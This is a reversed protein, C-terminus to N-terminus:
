LAKDLRIYFTSYNDPNFGLAFGASATMRIGINVVANLEMGLSYSPQISKNTEWLQGMDFFISAYIRDLSQSLIIAKEVKFLPFRYELNFLYGGTGSFFGAPYGRLLALSDSNVANFANLPDSGGMFFLPKAEGWSEALALNCVLVAPRALPLYYRLGLYASNGNFDSGMFKFYNAMSLNIKFGDSPSISNYFERTTNMLFSSSVGSWTLQAFTTKEPLLYYKQNEIQPKINFYYQSGIGIYLPLLCSVSIKQSRLAYNLNDISTYHNTLNSFSFGLTPSFGNYLYSFFYNFSCSQLGYFAEWTYQHYSIIDNGMILLGPQHENGGQRYNPSLYKPLLERWSQYSKLSVPNEETNVKQQNSLLSSDPKTWDTFQIEAQHIKGLDYGHGTLCCLIYQNNLTDSAYFNILPLEPYSMIISSHDRLDIMALKKTQQHECIFQLQQNNKWQPQYCKISGDTINQALKKTQLDFCVIRWQKGDEKISAALSSHDPSITLNAIAPYSFPLMHITQNKKHYVAIHSNFQRRKVFYIKDGASVPYSARIGKTLQSIRGSKLCFSFLEDYYFYNKYVALATFYIKQAPNDLCYSKLGSKQILIKTQGTQTDLCELTSDSKYNNAIYYVYRDESVLPYKKEYGSATILSFAASLPAPSPISRDIFEQWLFNLNQQFCKKFPGQPFFTLPLRAYYRVLESISNEGYTAALYKLFQSGYLYRAMSGPWALPEGHIRSWHSLSSSRKKEILIQQYDLSYNRGMPDIMSEGYIAWGELMWSPAFTIPYFLPLSGFIKRMFLSFGSALNLNFLHTLEHALVAPIWQTYNGLESEPDAPFLDIGIQNFPFYSAYGNGRDVYDSLLIIIKGKISCQWFEKLRAYIQDAQKLTFLALQHYDAPYVVVFKDSAIEKFRINPPVRAALLGTITLLLFWLLLKKLQNKCVSKIFNM